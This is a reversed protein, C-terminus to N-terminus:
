FTLTALRAAFAHTSIFNCIRMFTPCFINTEIYIRHNFIAVDTEYTEYM